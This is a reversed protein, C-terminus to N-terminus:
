RCVLLGGDVWPPSQFRARSRRAIHCLLMCCYADCERVMAPFHSYIVAIDATFYGLSMGLAAETLDSRALM